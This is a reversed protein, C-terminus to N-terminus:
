CSDQQLFISAALDDDSDDLHVDDGTELEDSYYLLDGTDPEGLEVRQIAIMMIPAGKKHMCTRKFVWSLGRAESNSMYQKFSRWITHAVGEPTDARTTMTSPLPMGLVAVQDRTEGCHQPIAECINHLVGLRCM